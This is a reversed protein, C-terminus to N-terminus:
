SKKISEFHSYFEMDARILRFVDDSLSQNYNIVSKLSNWPHYRKRFKGILGTNPLKDFIPLLFHKTAGLNIEVDQRSIAERFGGGHHYVLNDYIGFFVPHLNYQNSRLMPYWDIEKERLQELLNGGVDTVLKGQPNRWKYGSKWDGKIDKWFRVTTLCFSPHPQCDGNNEKRQIAILPFDDLKRNGFDMVNGIPFADGDIFVIRDDPSEANSCVLDALTNLKEAHTKAPATSSYFFKGRHVESVGDLFAYIKYPTHIYKSLYKIQIDIWKDENWHVTLIHLM